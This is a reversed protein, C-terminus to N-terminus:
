KAPTPAPATPGVTEKLKINTINLVSAVGSGYVKASILLDGTKVLATAKDSCIETYSSYNLNSVSKANGFAFSQNNSELIFEKATGKVTACLVYNKGSSQTVDLYAGVTTAGAAGGYGGNCSLSAVRQSNKSPDVVDRATCISSNAELKLNNSVLNYTWQNSFSYAFSKYVMIGGGLLAFVTVIAIMRGKFTNLQLKSLLSPKQKNSTRPSSM